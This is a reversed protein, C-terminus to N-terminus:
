DFPQWKVFKTWKWWSICILRYISFKSACKLIKFNRQGEGISLVFVRVPTDGYQGFDMWNNNKLKKKLLFLTLMTNNGYYQEIVNIPYQLIWLWTLFLLLKDLVLWKMYPFPTTFKMWIMKLSSWLCLVLTTKMTGLKLQVKVIDVLFYTLGFM